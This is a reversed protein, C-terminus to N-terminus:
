NSLRTMVLCVKADATEVHAEQTTDIRISINNSPPEPRTKTYLSAGNTLTQFSYLKDGRDEMAQTITKRANLTAILSNTYVAIMM